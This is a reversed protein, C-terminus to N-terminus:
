NGGVVVANTTVPRDMREEPSLGSDPRITATKVIAKSCVKRKWWRGYVAEDMYYESIVMDPHQAKRLAVQKAASRAMNTARAFMMVRYSRDATSNGTLRSVLSGGEVGGVAPDRPLESWFIPIPWLATFTACAQGEVVDNVTIQARTLPELHTQVPQRVNHVKASNYTGCATMGLGAFVLISATLRM